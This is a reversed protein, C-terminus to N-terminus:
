TSSWRLSETGAGKADAQAESVSGKGRSRASPRRDHDESSRAGWGAIRGDWRRSGRLSMSKVTGRGIGHQFLMSLRTRAPIFLGGRPARRVQVPAAVRRRFPLRPLLLEV